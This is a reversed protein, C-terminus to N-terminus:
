PVASELAALRAEIATQRAELGAAIFQNLEDYRFAYRDSAPITETWAAQMERDDTAEIAAHEITEGKWSDYCIFGYNFPDLGHSEMIKIAAQVTPGIHERAGGGKTAIATKWRYVRIARAIDAAAAIEVAELARFMDKERADSTITPAVSFYSNGWRYNSLGLNHADDVRPRVVGGDSALILHSTGRLVFNEGTGGIVLAGGDSGLYGIQLSSGGKIFAMYSNGVIDSRFVGWASAGSSLSLPGGTHSWTGTTTPNAINVKSNLAAQQLTSVPKATDSTNDVSGMGVMTKTIGNVAGTFTAGSLSAKGALASATATSVPKSADSTNDVSDLGVDAKSGSTAVAAFQPIGTISGWTPVYSGPLADTIGYGALTMARAAKNADLEALAAQVDTAVIGGAPTSSIQSALNAPITVWTGAQFVRLCGSNLVTDWYTAGALLADGNNDVDPPLTKAGLYRADLSKLAAAAKSAATAATGDSEAAAAAAAASAAASAAAAASNHPIDVIDKAKALQNLQYILDQQGYKFVDTM